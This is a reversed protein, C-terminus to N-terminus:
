LAWKHCRHSLDSSHDQYTNSPKGSWSLITTIARYRLIQRRTVREYEIPMYM